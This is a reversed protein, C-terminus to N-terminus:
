KISKRQTKTSKITLPVLFRLKIVWKWVVALLAKDVGYIEKNPYTPYRHSNDFAGLRM